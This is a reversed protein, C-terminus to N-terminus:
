LFGGDFDAPLFEGGFFPSNHDIDNAPKLEKKEMYDALMIDYEDPVKVEVGPLLNSVMELGENMEIIDPISEISGTHELALDPVSQGPAAKIKKM